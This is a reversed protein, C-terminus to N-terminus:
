FTRLARLGRRWQGFIMDSADDAAYANAASEGAGIAEDSLAAHEADAESDLSRSALLLLSDDAVVTAAEIADLSSDAPPDDEVVLLAFALDGSAADSSAGDIAQAASPTTTFEAPAAAVDGFREVWLDYDAMEVIGNHDGDARLDTESGLSDRWVTFDAGDVVGNGNYDGTLEGGFFLLPQPPTEMGEGIWFSPHPPQNYASNQAAISQRYMSDHMLTTLRSDAAITTTWIELASSDSRRWIVEERWDGLIDASLAPTSKTGNNSSLGATSNIGSKDYAVYNSRGPNMWDSITTGDLLERSLDGDWWVAFNVSVNGYEYLALGSVNYIYRTGENTTGWFEYGEHNPDIDAAVGRGVDSDVASPIQFILEGTAADRLEGGANRGQSQFANSSEHVMFVELGPRSPDMDSLHLADGHGLETAYLGTGDHDIVAAGYVVEDFGDNDADGITLSHAGEGIYEGNSGRNGLTDAKFIWRQTLQGDRYDYAAVENRAQRGSQPGYYGRGIVVSPSTGDFYGVGATFRDVRNGYGDGWEAVDGRVPDFAITDLEEGTLGDFVTYYEPGTLIYGSSNRYDDTVQDAGMLVANGLGDITGPATKLVIESRGDGDLDYVIPQTYHAGARINHGLDIRWLLEGELTYADIYVNGTYGAHANDKANSPDWKLIVEYQGDGDLDGVSADNASYTYSGDPTTGGAPIQLPITLHQEITANAGLTYSASDEQEVGDVVARVFYTNDANLNATSDQFDTTQTLPAANLKVAPAGNESRYLNFAVDAPDDGLMRWGVYAAGGSPRVAVVGRDLRELQRPTVVQEFPAAEYAVPGEAANAALESSGVAEDYLRVEDILGFFGPDNNWLSRGFYAVSQTISGIDAGALSTAGREVGDVYLRLTNTADDVVGAVVHQQGDATETGWTAAREGSGGGGTSLALRSDSGGSNATFFFYSDGNSGNQSGFDFVRSWTTSSDNIATTFWVEVTFSGSAPLANTPLSLYQVESADGSDAGNNYLVAQGNIVGVGNELTMDASGVLDDGTGDNFTYWHTLSLVRRPELTEVHLRRGAAHSRRASRSHKRLPM